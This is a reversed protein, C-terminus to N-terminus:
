LTCVKCNVVVSEGQVRETECSFSVRSLKKGLGLVGHLGVECDGFQRSLSSQGHGGLL